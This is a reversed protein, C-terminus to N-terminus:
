GLRKLTRGCRRGHACPGASVGSPRPALNTIVFVPQTSRADFNILPADVEALNNSVLNATKIIM